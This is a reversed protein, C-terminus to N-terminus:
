DGVTTPRRRQRRRRGGRERLKEARRAVSKRLCRPGAHLLAKSPSPLVNWARFSPWGRGAASLAVASGASRPSQVMSGFKTTCSTLCTHARNAVPRTWNRDGGMMQHMCGRRLRDRLETDHRASPQRNELGRTRHGSLPLGWHAPKGEPHRAAGSELADALARADSEIIEQLWGPYYRGDWDPLREEASAESGAPSWGGSLAWEEEPVSTGTPTWGYLIAVSLISLWIKAPISFGRLRRVSLSGSGRAGSTM